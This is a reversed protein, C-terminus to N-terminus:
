DEQEPGQINRVAEAEIRKRAGPVLWIWRYRWPLKRWQQHVATRANVEIRFRTM